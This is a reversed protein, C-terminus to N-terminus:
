RGSSGFGGDGRDGTAETFDKVEVMKVEPVPLILLQAVREGENFWQIKDTNNRLLVKLEGTYGADIIGAEVSLGRAAVSSRDRVMGVWGSPIAISVRTSVLRSGWAPVECVEPTYIDWGGDTPHAKTPIIGRPHTRKVELCLPEM